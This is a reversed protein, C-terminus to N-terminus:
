IRTGELPCFHAPYPRSDWCDLLIVVPGSGEGLLGISLLAVKGAIDAVTPPCLDTVRGGARDFRVVVTRASKSM